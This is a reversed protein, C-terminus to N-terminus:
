EELHVYGMLKSIRRMEVWFISTFPKEYVNTYVCDLLGSSRYRM